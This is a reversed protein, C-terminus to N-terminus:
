ATNLCAAAVWWGPHSEQLRGAASAATEADAYLGFCTGGSGSMRTLLCGPTVELTKFIQKIAPESAMAPTHLDNRQEQLWAILESADCGTPLTEPMPPNDRKALHRFVESTSVPLNPNVLVAHLQPLGPAAIVHDGIGTMRAAGLDAACCVRADAGLPLVDDPIPKGTLKSLARLTAAADSSGGGIGAAIPLRKDLTIHATVGMLKAARIVLNDDGPPTKDAMPGTLELVTRDARRVTLSDGIDAFMVLSDIQHYGDERQGTVHLTLNVKAPAFVEATDDDHGPLTHEDKM